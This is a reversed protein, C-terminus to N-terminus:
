YREFTGLGDYKFYVPESEGAVQLKIDNLKYSDSTLTSINYDKNNLNYDILLDIYKDNDNIVLVLNTKNKKSSKFELCYDDKKDANIDLKVYRIQIDPDNVMLNKISVKGYRDNVLEKILDQLDNNTNIDSFGTAFNSLVISNADSKIDFPEISCIIKRKELYTIKYYINEKINLNKEFNLSSRLHSTLGINRDDVYKYMDWLQIVNIPNDETHFLGDMEEQEIKKIPGYYTLYEGKEYHAIDIRYDVIAEQLNGDSLMGFTPVSVVFFNALVIVIPIRYKIFWRINIVVFSIALVLLLIQVVMNCYYTPYLAAKVFGVNDDNFIKIFLAPLRLLAMEILCFGMTFFLPAILAISEFTRFENKGRKKMDLVGFYFWIKIDLVNCVM